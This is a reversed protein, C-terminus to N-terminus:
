SEGRENEVRVLVIPFFFQHLGDEGLGREAGGAGGCFYMGRQSGVFVESPPLFLVTGRKKMELGASSKEKGV